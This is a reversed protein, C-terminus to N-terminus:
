SAPTTLPKPQQHKFASWAERLRYLQRGCTDYQVIHKDCISTDILNGYLDRSQCLSVVMENCESMADDLYKQFGNKQHCKAYGEAILRPIAKSARSLQDCLDYKESSPLKPVVEKMVVLM